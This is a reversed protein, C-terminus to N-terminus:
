YFDWLIDFDHFEWLFRFFDRFVCLFYMERSNRAKNWINFPPLRIFSMPWCLQHSIWAFFMSKAALRNRWCLSLGISWTWRLLPQYSAKRLAANRYSQSVFGKVYLDMKRIKWSKSSEKLLSQIIILSSINWAKWLRLFWQFWAQSRM